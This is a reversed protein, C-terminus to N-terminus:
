RASLPRWIIQRHDVVFHRALARRPEHACHPATSRDQREKRKDHRAGGAISRIDGTLARQCLTPCLSGRRTQPGAGSTVGHCRERQGAM